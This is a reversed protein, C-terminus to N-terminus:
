RRMSEETVRGPPACHVFSIAVLLPMVFALASAPKSILYNEKFNDPSRHAGAEPLLIIITLNRDRQPPRKKAKFPPFKTRLNKTRHPVSSKKYPPTRLNVSLYPPDCSIGLSIMQLRLLPIAFLFPLTAEVYAGGYEETSRRIEGYLFEPSIKRKIM